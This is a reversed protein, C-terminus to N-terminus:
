APVVTVSGDDVVTGNDFEGFIASSIDLQTAGAAKGVLDIEFLTGMQVDFPKEILNPDGPGEWFWVYVVYTRLTSTSPREVMNGTWTWGFITHDLPAVHDFKQVMRAGTVTVIQPNVTFRVRIVDDPKYPKNITIPGPGNVNIQVKATGGVPMSPIATASVNYGQPM